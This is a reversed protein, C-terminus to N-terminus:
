HRFIDELSLMYSICWDEGRMNCLASQDRISELNSLVLIVCGDMGAEPLTGTNALFVLPLFLVRCEHASPLTIRGGHGLGM